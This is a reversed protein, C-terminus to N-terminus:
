LIKDKLKRKIKQRLIDQNYTENDLMSFFKDYSIKPFIEIKSDLSVNYIKCQKEFSYVGFDKDAKGKTNYYNIKGIGRHNIDGQYFHTLHRNKIDKQGNM